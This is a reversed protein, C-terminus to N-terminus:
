KLIKVTLRGNKIGWGHIGGGIYMEVHRCHIDFAHMEGYISFIRLYFWLM